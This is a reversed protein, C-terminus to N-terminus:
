FALGGEFDMSFDFKILTWSFLGLAGNFGVGGYKGKKPALVHVPFVKCALAKEADPRLLQGYAAVALSRISSSTSSAQAVLVPSALLLEELQASRFAHTAHTMSAWLNNIEANPLWPPSM